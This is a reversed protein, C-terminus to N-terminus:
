DKPPRGVTERWDLPDREEQGLGVPADHETHQVKYSNIILRQPNTLNAAHTGDDSVSWVGPYDNRVFKALEAKAGDESDFVGLIPNDRLGDPVKPMGEWLLTWTRANDKAAKTAHRHGSSWGAKFVKQLIAALDVGNYDSSIRVLFLKEDDTLEVGEPIQERVRDRAAQRARQAADQWKDHEEDSIM